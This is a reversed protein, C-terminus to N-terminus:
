QGCASMKPLPKGSRAKDLLADGAEFLSMNPALKCQAEILGGLNCYSRLGLLDAGRQDKIRDVEDDIARSSELRVAKNWGKDHTASKLIKRCPVTPGRIQSLCRESKLQLIPGSCDADDMSATAPAKCTPDIGWGDGPGMCGTITVRRPLKGGPPPYIEIDSWTDTKDGHYCVPTDLKFNISTTHPGGEGEGTWSSAMGSLTLRQGDKFPICNAAEIKADKISQVTISLDEDLTLNGVVVAHHGLWENSIPDARVVTVATAPKYQFCIPKDLSIAFYKVGAPEGTGDNAQTTISQVIDGTLTVHETEGAEYCSAMAPMSLSVLAAAALFAKIM